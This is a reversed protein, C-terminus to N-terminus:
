VMFRRTNASVPPTDSVTVNSGGGSGGAFLETIQDLHNKYFLKGDAYNLALEGYELSSPTASSTGNRKIRIVNAM